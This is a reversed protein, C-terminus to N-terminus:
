TSDSALISRLIRDVETQWHPLSLDFAARVKATSLRSNAPRRAPTPYDATGIPAIQEVRAKLDAGAAHAAAVIYRAYGYWSTEGAASVHHLGWRDDAACVGRLMQVAAITVRAIEAASTPAGIQDDVIRLTDRERALRLVTKLFNAGHEGFVWCTRFILHRACAHQVALEGTLKTSGYVSIPDPDDAEEYPTPKCGDFVYDTSYHVLCAGLAEAEEALVGPAVANIAAARAPESEAKDVATYAAANVILDPKHWRVIARLSEPESLDADARALPTVSGLRPLVKLLEHGVQGGPGFLLIHM